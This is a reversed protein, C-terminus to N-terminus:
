QAHDFPMNVFKIATLNYFVFEREVLDLVLIMQKSLTYNKLIAYHKQLGGCMKIVTAHVSTFKNAYEM